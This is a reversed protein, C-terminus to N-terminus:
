PRPSGLFGGNLTAAPIAGKEVIFKKFATRLIHRQEEFPRHEFREVDDTTTM